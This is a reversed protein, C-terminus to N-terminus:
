IIKLSLAFLGKEDVLNKESSEVKDDKLDEQNDTDNFTHVSLAQWSDKSSDKKFLM